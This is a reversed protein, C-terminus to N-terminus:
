SRLFRLVERNFERDQFAAHGLGKTLYLESGSIREAIEESTGRGVVRDDEDGIVLTPSVIRHLEAYADHGLCSRAQIVFRRLSAPRGVRALIPYLPRYRKATREPYTKEMSDITLARYDGREAMEVWGGIVQQITEKQRSVSVGITLRGVRHPHDIALWQAIMGGQSVGLVHAKEIGLTGMAEALDRAMDRTTCGDELDHKRSFVHIRHDKAYQRYLIALTPAMKGVTKLGDGLGPIIVLQQEGRGFVVYEAQTTGIPVSRSRAGLVM